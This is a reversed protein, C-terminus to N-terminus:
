RRQRGGCRGGAELATLLLGRRPPRRPLPALRRGEKIKYDKGAPYAGGHKAGEGVPPLKIFDKQKAAQQEENDQDNAESSLGLSSNANVPLRGKGCLELRPRRRRCM